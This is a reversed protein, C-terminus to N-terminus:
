VRAPVSDVPAKPPDEIDVEISVTYGVSAAFQGDLANKLGRKRNIFNEVLANFGTSSGSVDWDAGCNPCSQRLNIPGDAFPLSMSSKCQKCELVVKKMDGLGIFHKTQKPM